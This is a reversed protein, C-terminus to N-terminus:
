ANSIVRHGNCVIPAYHKFNRLNLAIRIISIISNKPNKGINGDHMKYVRKFIIFNNSTGLKKYIMIKYLPYM